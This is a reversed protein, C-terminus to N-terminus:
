INTNLKERTGFENLKRMLLNDSAGTIDNYVDTIEIEDTIVQSVMEYIGCYSDGGEVDHREYHHVATITYPGWITEFEHGDVDEYLSAGIQSWIEGFIIRMASQGVSFAESESDPTNGIQSPIFDYEPFRPDQYIAPNNAIPPQAVQANM